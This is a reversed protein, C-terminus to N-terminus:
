LKKDEPLIRPLNEYLGGGTINAIGKINFNEILDLVTKVYIRTPKILEEGLTCGLEKIYDNIGM